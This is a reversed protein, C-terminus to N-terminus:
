QRLDTSSCSQTGPALEGHITPPIDMANYFVKIMLITSNTTITHRQADRDGLDFLFACCMLAMREGTWVRKSNNNLVAGQSVEIDSNSVFYEVLRLTVEEELPRQRQSPSPSLLVDGTRSLETMLVGPM